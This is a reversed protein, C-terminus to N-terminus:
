RVSGCRWVAAFDRMTWFTAGERSLLDILTDLATLHAAGSNQWLWSAVELRGEGFVLEDPTPVFEWPHLYLCFFPPVGRSRLFPGMSDMRQKMREGGELRLRPWADRERKYPDRLEATFDAFLPLELLPLDGPERWDASHPYYPGFQQAYFYTPYSSDAVYGLRVLAQIVQNSGQLRPCRFSVPRVGAISAVEDTALELRHDIEEPLLTFIGPTDSNAEGLFEHQLGHCGVECGAALVQEVAGPCARAAAATFLFTAPVRHRALIELIAPTGRNVGEYTTWWNGLDTEMDFSIIVHPPQATM